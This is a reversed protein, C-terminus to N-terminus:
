QVVMLFGASNEEASRVRVKHVGVDEQPNRARDTRHDPPDRLPDGACLRPDLGAAIIAIAFFSVEANVAL